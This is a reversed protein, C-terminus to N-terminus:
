EKTTVMDSAGSYVAASGSDLDVYVNGGFIMNKLSSLNIILDRDSKMQKTM